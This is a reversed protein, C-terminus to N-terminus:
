DSKGVRPVPFGVSAWVDGADMEGNAQLVTVGWRDVGASIAWDLSSPGRDGVPGPHVILCTYKQWVDEPIARKLMPAIVLEPACDGLADRLADDSSALHVDLTHGRDRLEAHVRQTLSNFASAVLLIHM